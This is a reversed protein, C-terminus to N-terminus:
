KEPIIYKFCAQLIATLATALSVQPFYITGLRFYGEPLMGESEERTSFNTRAIKSCVQNLRSRTQTTAKINAPNAAWPAGWAGAIAGASMSGFTYAYIALVRLGMVRRRFEPPAARLLVTLMLVQTSSFAIGTM